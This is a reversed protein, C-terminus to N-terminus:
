QSPFALALLEPDIEPAVHSPSAHPQPTIPPSIANLIGVHAAKAPRTIAALLTNHSGEAEPVAFRGTHPDRPQPM